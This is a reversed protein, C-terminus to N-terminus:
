KLFIVMCILKLKKEDFAEIFDFLIKKESDSNIDEIVTQLPFTGVKNCCILGFNTFIELLFNKKLSNNMSIKNFSTYLKQCFYNSYHNTMLCHLNPKIEYFIEEIISNDTQPLHNQLIRCSNQNFLVSIYNGKLFNRHLNDSIKQSNSSDLIIKHLENTNVFNDKTETEKNLNIKEDDSNELSSFHYLENDNWDGKLINLNFAEDRSIDSFKENFENISIEDDPILQSDKNM